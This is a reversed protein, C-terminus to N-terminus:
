QLLLTQTLQRNYKGGEIEQLKFRDKLESKSLTDNSVIQIYKQNVLKSAIIYRDFFIQDLQQKRASRTKASRTKKLEPIVVRSYEKKMHRRFYEYASEISVFDMYNLQTVMEKVKRGKHYTRKFSRSFASDSFFHMIMAMLQTELETQYKFVYEKLDLNTLEDLPINYKAILRDMAKKAAAREGETAGQNVLAYIKSLREKLSDEM